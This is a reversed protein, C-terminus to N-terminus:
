EKSMERTNDEPYCWGNVFMYLKLAQPYEADGAQVTKLLMHPIPKDLHVPIKITTPLEGPFPKADAGISVFIPQTM